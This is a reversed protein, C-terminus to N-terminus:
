CIRRFRGKEENDDDEVDFYHEFGPIILNQFAKKNNAANDTVLHVVKTQIEFGNVINEYTQLLM